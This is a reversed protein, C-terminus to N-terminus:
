NDNKDDEINFNNIDERVENLKYSVYTELQNAVDLYQKRLQHFKDDEIESFSSYNKFCYHLGEADMRYLVSSWNDEQELLDELKNSM